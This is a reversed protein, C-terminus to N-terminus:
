RAGRRRRTTPRRADEFLSGLVTFEAEILEGLDRTAPGALWADLSRAYLLLGLAALLECRQDAEPLNRRSAVAKALGRTHEDRHDQSRGRLTPSSAVARQYLGLFRRGRSLSSAASVFANRMADVDPLEVPQDLFRTTFEQIWDYEGAWLVSEKTPFYRFFTRASVGAREAIEETTSEDYGKSAFLELAATRLAHRTRTKHESRRSPAGTVMDNSTRRVEPCPGVEAPPVIAGADM